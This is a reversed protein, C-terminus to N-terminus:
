ASWERNLAAWREPGMERKGREIERDLSYTADCEKGYHDPWPGFRQDFPVHKRRSM